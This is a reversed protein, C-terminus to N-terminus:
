IESKKQNAAIYEAVAYRLRHYKARERTCAGRARSCEYAMLLAALILLFVIM